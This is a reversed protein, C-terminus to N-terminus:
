RPRPAPAIGHVQRPEDPADGQREAIERGTREMWNTPGEREMEQSRLVQDTQTTLPGPHDADWAVRGGGDAYPLKRMGSPLTPDRDQDGDDQGHRARQEDKHAQQEHAQQERALDKHAQEDNPKHPAQAM